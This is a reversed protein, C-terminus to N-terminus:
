QGKSTERLRVCGSVYALVIGGAREPRLRTPFLLQIWCWGFTANLGTLFPVGEHLGQYIPSFLRYSSPRDATRNANKGIGGSFGGTNQEVM